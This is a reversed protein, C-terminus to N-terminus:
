VRTNRLLDYVQRQVNSIILDRKGPNAIELLLVLRAESQSIDMIRVQPVTDQVLDIKMDRGIEVLHEEIKTLDMGNKVTVPIQIRLGGSRTRNVISQKLLNSNPIVVIENDPTVLKTHILDTDIVRGYHDKTEIWEGVKFPQYISIFQSAAVDTLVDQYALLIALSGLGIILLLIEINVALQSLLIIVVVTWIVWSGFQQVLGVLRPHMTRSLRQVGMRYLRVTLFTAAIVIAVTLLETGLVTFQDAM